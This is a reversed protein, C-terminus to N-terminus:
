EFRLSVNLNTALRKVYDRLGSRAGGLGVMVRFIPVHWTGSRIVTVSRATLRCGSLESELSIESETTMPVVRDTMRRKLYNPRRSAETVVTVTTQGMDEEWSPLGGVDPLAETKKRMKGTLPINRFDELANWVRDPSADLFAKVRAEYREPMLLGILMMALPVGFVIAFIIYIWIM